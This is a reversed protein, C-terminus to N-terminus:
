DNKSKGKLSKKVPNHPLPKPADKIKSYDFEGPHGVAKLEAKTYAARPFNLTWPSIEEPRTNNVIYRDRAEAADRATAFGSQQHAHYDKMWQWKFRGKKDASVGRYGTSNRNFNSKQKSISRSTLELNSLWNCSRCGNKFSIDMREPIPGVFTDWIMRHTLVHKVKGNVRYTVATYQTGAKGQTQSYGLYRNTAPNRITGDTGVLLGSEQHIKYEPKNTKM